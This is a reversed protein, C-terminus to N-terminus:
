VNIQNPKNLTVGSFLIATIDHRDTKYTFSILTGPYYWQGATLRQCVTHCLTTYLLMISYMYMKHIVTFLIYM